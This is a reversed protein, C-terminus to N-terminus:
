AIYGKHLSRGDKGHRNVFGFDSTDPVEDKLQYGCTHCWRIGNNEGIVQETGCACYELSKSTNRMIKKRNNTEM